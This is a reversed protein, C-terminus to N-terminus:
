ISFAGHCANKVMKAFNSLFYRSICLRAYRFQIALYRFQLRLAERRITRKLSRRIKRDRAIIRARDAPHVSFCGDQSGSGAWASSINKSAADASIFIHDRM